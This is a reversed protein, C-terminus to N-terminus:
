DNLSGNRYIQRNLITSPSYEMQSRHSREAPPHETIEISNINTLDLNNDPDTVMPLISIEIREGAEIVPLPPTIVPARNILVTVIATTSNNM